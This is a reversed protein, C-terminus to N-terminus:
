FPRRPIPNLLPRPKQREKDVSSDQQFDHLYSRNQQYPNVTEDPLSLRSRMNKLNEFESRSNKRDIFDMRGDRSVAIPNDNRRTWDQAANVVDRPSISNMDSVPMEGLLRRFAEMREKNQKEAMEKERLEMLTKVGADIGFKGSLGGAGNEFGPIRLGLRQLEFLSKNQRFTNEDGFSSITGSKTRDREQEFGGRNKQLAQQKQREMLAMKEQRLLYQEVPSLNRRENLNVIGAQRNFKSTENLDSDSNEKRFFPDTETDGMKNNKNIIIMPQPLQFSPAVPDGLSDRPNFKEFPKSLIQEVPDTSPTKLVRRPESFEIPEGSKLVSALLALLSISVWIKM